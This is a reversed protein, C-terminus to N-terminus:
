GLQFPPLGQESRLRNAISVLEQVNAREGDCLYLQVTPYYTPIPRVSINQQRLYEILGTRSIQAADPVRDIRGGRALFQSILESRSERLSM